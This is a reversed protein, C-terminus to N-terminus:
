RSDYDGDSEVWTKGNGSSVTTLRHHIFFFFDAKNVLIARNQKVTHEVLQASLRRVTGRFMDRILNDGDRYADLGRQPLLSRRARLLRVLTGLCLGIFRFM